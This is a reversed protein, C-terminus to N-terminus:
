RLDRGEPRLSGRILLDGGLQEDAGAGDVVVKALRKALETHLGAVLEFLVQELWVRSGPRHGPPIRTRCPAASCGRGALDAAISVKPRAGAGGKLSATFGNAPRALGRRRGEIRWGRM